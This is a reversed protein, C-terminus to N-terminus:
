NRNQSRRLRNAELQEKTLSFGGYILYDRGTRGPSIDLTLSPAPLNRFSFKNRNQSFDVEINHRKVELVNKNLDTKSIFYPYIAKRSTNAPGRTAIFNFAVEVELTGTMTDEDIRTTCILRMDNIEGEIDVDTLDRGGGEAYQVMYAAEALIRNDPCALVIPDDMIDTVKKVTECSALLFVATIALAARQFTNPKRMFLHELFGHLTEINKLFSLIRHSRDPDLLGEVLFRNQTTKIQKGLALLHRDPL